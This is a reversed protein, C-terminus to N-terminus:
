KSVKRSRKAEKRKAKKALPDDKEYNLVPVISQVDIVDPDFHLDDTHYDVWSGRDMVLERAEEQDEAAVLVTAAGAIVNYTIEVRFLLVKRKAM